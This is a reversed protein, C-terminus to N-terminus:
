STPKTASLIVSLSAAVRAIDTEALGPFLPLCLGERAARESEELSGVVRHSAADAYAPQEHANSVGRRAGIGEKALADVVAQTDVGPRLRVCLSQWNSLRGSPEVPFDV